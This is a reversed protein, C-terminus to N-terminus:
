FRYKSQGKLIATGIWLLHQICVDGTRPLFVYGKHSFLVNIQQASPMVSFVLVGGNSRPLWLSLCLSITKHSVQMQEPIHADTRSLFRWWLLHLVSTNESDDKQFMSRGSYSEEGWVRIRIRHRPGLDNRADPASQLAPLQQQLKQELATVEALM